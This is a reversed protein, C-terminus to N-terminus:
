VLVRRKVGTQSVSGMGPASKLWAPVPYAIAECLEEILTTIRQPLAEIFEGSMKAEIWSITSTTTHRTREFTRGYHLWRNRLEIIKHFTQYPERSSNFRGDQGHVTLCLHWKAQPQLREYLKWNPITEEGVSNIFAELCAAAGVVAQVRELYIEHLRANADSSSSLSSANRSHHVLSQFFIPEAHFRTLIEGNRVTFDKFQSLLPPPDTVVKSPGKYSGRKMLHVDYLRQRIPTRLNELWDYFERVRQEFTAHGPNGPRIPLNRLQALRPHIQDLPELDIDDSVWKGYNRGEVSVFEAIRWQWLQGDHLVQFYRSFNLKPDWVDM